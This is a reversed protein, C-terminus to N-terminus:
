ELDYYRFERSCTKCKLFLKQFGFSSKVEAVFNKYQSVDYLKNSPIEESQNCKPCIVIKKPIDKIIQVDEARVIPAEGVHGYTRKVRKSMILYSYWVIVALAQMVFRILFQENPPFGVLLALLYTVIPYCFLALLFRKAIDPANKKIEFLMAGAYIGFIIIGFGLAINILSILRLRPYLDFYTTLQKYESILRPINFMPGLFVLGVCFLSLWGGVSDYCVDIFGAPEKNAIINVEGAVESIPTLEKAPTASENSASEDGFTKSEKKDIIESEPKNNLWEGCFRCKRAEEQIQEACYPCKKM